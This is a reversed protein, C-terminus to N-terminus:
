KDEVFNKLEKYRGDAALWIIASLAPFRRLLRTFQMELATNMRIIFPIDIFRSCFGILQIGFLSTMWV